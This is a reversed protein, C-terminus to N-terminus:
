IGPIMAGYKCDTEPIFYLSVAAISVLLNALSVAESELLILVNFAFVVAFRAANGNADRAVAQFLIGDPIITQSVSVFSSCIGIFLLFLRIYKFM